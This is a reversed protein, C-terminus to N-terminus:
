GIFGQKQMETLRDRRHDRTTNTVQAYYHCWVFVSILMTVRVSWICLPNHECAVFTGGWLVNQRPKYVSIFWFTYNRILSQTHSESRGRSQGERFMGSCDHYWYMLWLGVAQSIGWHKFFSPVNTSSSSKHMGSQVWKNQTLRPVM